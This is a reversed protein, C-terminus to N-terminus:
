PPLTDTSEDVALAADPPRPVGEIQGEGQEVPLLALEGEIGLDNQRAAM